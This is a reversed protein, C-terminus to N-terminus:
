LTNNPQKAARVPLQQEAAHVRAEDPDVGQLGTVGAEGGHLGVPSEAYVVVLVAVRPVDVAAVVVLEHQCSAVVAVDEGEAQKWGLLQLFFAQLPLPGLNRRGPDTWM